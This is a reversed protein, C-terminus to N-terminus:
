GSEIEDAETRYLFDRLSLWPSKSFLSKCKCSSDDHRWSEQCQTFHHSDLDAGLLHAMTEARNEHSSLVAKSGQTSFIQIQPADLRGEPMRGQLLFLQLM